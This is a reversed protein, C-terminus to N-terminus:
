QSFSKEWKEQPLAGLAAGRNTGCADHQWERCTFCHRARRRKHISTFSRERSGHVFSSIEHMRSIYLTKM